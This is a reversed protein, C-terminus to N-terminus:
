RKRLTMQDFLRGDEDVAQFELQDGHIAVYVFHHRRAKKHGFWTNAPDFDELSGGGGAATVYIVGGERYPQVAGERIPFTREYDHVHGSFCLDVDYKELLAVINRVNLDGRTSSSLLTDGYDNSDSTYPPQHLVAFRWTARSASLASELWALQASQDALSRNGDIMFFEANGYRFSYWREPEPLSM